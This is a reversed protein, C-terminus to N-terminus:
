TTPHVLISEPSLDPVRRKRRRAAAALKNVAVDIDCIPWRQEDDLEVVASVAGAHDCYGRLRTSM